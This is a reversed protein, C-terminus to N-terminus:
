WFVHKREALGRALLRQVARKVEAVKEELVADDDDPSGAFHMPAGFYIHYRTPLPLPLLTPTLPFYPFGLLKALPKVDLLSPAQEEAGVVGVPVVPADNELALRMFGLGFDRLRYRDKFPKGLGRTGEPFVLLCEGAALLRRCNEPTGVIQGCRSMFTSVFPLTPVWTDMLARVARPPDKDVLLSMEIMAGDFPLQGSHNAVLLVRGESPVADIGHVAVRFYKRYLWLLPAVASCTFDIDYGYPDVGYENSPPTLQELRAQTGPGGLEFTWAKLKERVLKGLDVMGAGASGRPPAAAGPGPPDRRM